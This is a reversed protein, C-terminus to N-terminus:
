GRMIQSSNRERAESVLFYHGAFGRRSRRAENGVVRLNKRRKERHPKENMADSSKRYSSLFCVATSQCTSCAIARRELKKGEEWGSRKVQKQGWSELLHLPPPLQEGGEMRSSQFLLTNFWRPAATVCSLRPLSFVSWRWITSHSAALQRRVMRWIVRRFICPAGTIIDSKSPNPTRRVAGYGPLCATRHICFFNHATQLQDDSILASISRYELMCCGCPFKILDAAM